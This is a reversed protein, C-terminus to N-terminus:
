GDYGGIESTKLIDNTEFRATKIDAIIIPMKNTM